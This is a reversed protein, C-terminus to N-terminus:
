DNPAEREDPVECVNPKDLWEHGAQDIAHQSAVQSMHQEGDAPCENQKGIDRRPSRRAKNIADWYTVLNIGIASDDIEDVWNPRCSNNNRM